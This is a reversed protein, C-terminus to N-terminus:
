ISCGLREDCVAKLSLWIGAVICKMRAKIKALDLDRSSAQRSCKPCSRLIRRAAETIALPCQVQLSSDLIREASM